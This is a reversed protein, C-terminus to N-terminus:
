YQGVAREIEDIWHRRRRVYFNKKAGTRLCILIETSFLRSHIPEISEIYELPIIEEHRQINFFHSRFILRQNTLVLQGGVWEFGKKHSAGGKRIIIENENLKM